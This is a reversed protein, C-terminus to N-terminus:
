QSPVPKKRPRRAHLVFAPPMNRWVTRSIVVEEFSEVLLARFRRAAVLPVAHAYTFATFAGAPSLVEATDAMLQQQTDLPFLAWPLGSIVVDAQYIGRAYLLQRLEGADRQIVEARPHWHQLRQALVPDIEIALHRGRGALRRQIEATFPGTGAGLEVVM